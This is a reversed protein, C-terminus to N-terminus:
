GEDEKLLRIYHKKPIDNNGTEIWEIWYFMKKQSDWYVRKHESM